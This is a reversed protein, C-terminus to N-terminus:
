AIKIHEPDKPNVVVRIEDGPSPITEYVSYARKAVAKYKGTKENEIEVTLEMQKKDVVDASKITVFTNAVSIVKAMVSVGHKELYRAKRTWLFWIAYCAGFVCSSFIIRDM